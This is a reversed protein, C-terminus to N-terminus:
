SEVGTTNDGKFRGAYKAFFDVFGLAAKLLNFDAIKGRTKIRNGQIHVGCEPYIAKKQTKCM